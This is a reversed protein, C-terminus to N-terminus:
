AHQQMEREPVPTLYSPFAWSITGDPCLIRVLNANEYCLLMVVLRGGTAHYIYLEGPKLM